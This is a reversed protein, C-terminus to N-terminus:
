SSGSEEVRATRRIRIPGRTTAPDVVTGGQTVEVTGAAVLRRAADRTPGMLDRWSVSAVARAVESPCISSDAARADLLTLITQELLRDTDAPNLQPTNRHSSVGAM